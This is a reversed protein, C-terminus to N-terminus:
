KKINFKLRLKYLNYGRWYWYGNKLDAYKLTKRWNKGWHGWRELSYNSHILEFEEILEKAQKKNIKRMKKM